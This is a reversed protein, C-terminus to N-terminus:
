ECGVGDGDRDLGYIDAGVVRVPGRVYAPGNGSGGACDVDSAIPVCGSYNPDCSAPASAPREWEWSCAATAASGDLDTVTLTVTFRGPSSYRHWFLNRDADGPSWSTYSKGDGYDLTASGFDEVEIRGGFEAVVSQESGAYDAPCLLLARPGSPRVTTTTSRQTTPTRSDPETLNLSALASLAADGDTAVSLEETDVALDEGLRPGFIALSGFAVILASLGVERTSGFVRALLYTKTMALAQEDESAVSGVWELPISAEVASSSQCRRAWPEHCSVPGAVGEALGTTERAGPTTCRKVRM